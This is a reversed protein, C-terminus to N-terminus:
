TKGSRVYIVSFAWHTWGISTFFVCATVRTPSSGVVEQKRTCVDKGSSWRVQQHHSAPEDPRAFGLIFLLSGSAFVIKSIFHFITGFIWSVHVLKCNSNIVKWTAKSKKATINAERSHEASSYIQGNLKPMPLACRNVICTCSVQLFYVQFWKWQKFFGM